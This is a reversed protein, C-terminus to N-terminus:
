KCEPCERTLTTVMLRCNPCQKVPAEGKRLAEIRFVSYGPDDICGHREINGGYDLVLFDKKWPYIRKGRGIKTQYRAQQCQRHPM